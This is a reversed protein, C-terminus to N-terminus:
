AGVRQGLVWCPKDSDAATCWLSHSFGVEETLALEPLSATSIPSGGEMGMPLEAWLQGQWFWSMFIHSNWERWCHQQDWTPLWCSFTNTSDPILQPCICAQHSAKPFSLIQVANKHCSLSQGRDTHQQVSEKSECCLPVLAIRDKM